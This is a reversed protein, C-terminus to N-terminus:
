DCTAMISWVSLNAEDILWSVFIGAGSCISGAVTVDVPAIKLILTDAAKKLWVQLAMFVNQPAGDLVVIM